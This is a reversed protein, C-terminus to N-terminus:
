RSIIRDYLQVPAKLQKITVKSFKEFVEKVKLHAIIEPDAGLIEGTVPHEIGLNERYCILHLYPKIKKSVGIDILAEDKDLIKTLIGELIPFDRKFKLALSNLMDHLYLSTKEVGFVDNRALITNTEADILWAIIELTDPTEIITGTLIAHINIIEEGDVRLSSHTPNTGSQMPERLIIKTEPLEVINFRKQELLSDIFQNHILKGLPSAEGKHDFPLVVVSMRSDIQHVQQVKREIVVKKETKNGLADIATVLFENSGEDLKKLQSFYLKKGYNNSIQEDDISISNIPSFDEVMFELRISDNYTERKPGIGKFQIFPPATDAPPSHSSVHLAIDTDLVVKADNHFLNSELYATDPTLIPDEEFDADNLTAKTVNGAKDTAILTTKGMTVDFKFGYANIAESIKWPRGNITLSRLGSGNDSVVGHAVKTKGDDDIRLIEVLPGRRDCLIELNQQTKKGALDTVIVPIVNEGEKLPINTSFIRQKEVLEIPIYKDGVQISAVFLDDVAVGSITYTFDSSLRKGIIGQFHLEPPSFDSSEQQIIAARAKNLFFHAKASPATQISLLLQDIAMDYQKRHYYILGLERHPFYDVFHIASSSARWEDQDRLSIAKKYDAIAKSFSNKDSFSRGREYLNRWNEQFIGGIADFEKGDQIDHGNKEACGFCTISTIFLLTLFYRTPFYKNM